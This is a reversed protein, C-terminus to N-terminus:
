QLVTRTAGAGNARRNELVHTFGDAQSAEAQLSKAQPAEAQSSEVQSAEAQTSM